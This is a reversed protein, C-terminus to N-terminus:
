MASDERMFSLLRQPPRTVLSEVPWTAAVKAERESLSGVLSAREVSCTAVRYVLGLRTSIGLCSVHYSSNGLELLDENKHRVLLLLTVNADLSESKKRGLCDVSREDTGLM